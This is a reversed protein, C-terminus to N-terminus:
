EYNWRENFQMQWEENIMGFLSSFFGVMDRGSYKDEEYAEKVLTIAKDIYQSSDPKDDGKIEQYIMRLDMYRTENIDIDVKEVLNALAYKKSKANIRADTANRYAENVDRAEKEIYYILLERTEEPTMEEKEETNNTAKKAIPKKKFPVKTKAKKKPM